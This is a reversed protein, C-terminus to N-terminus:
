FSLGRLREIEAAEDETAEIIDGTKEDIYTMAEVEAKAKREKFEREVAKLRKAERVKAMRAKNAEKKIEEETLEVEEEPALVEPKTKKTYHYLVQELVRSAMLTNVSIREKGHTTEWLRTGKLIKDLEKVWAKSIVKIDGSNNENMQDVINSVIQNFNEEQRVFLILNDLIAKIGPTGQPDFMHRIEELTIAKLQKHQM